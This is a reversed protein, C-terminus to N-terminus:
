RRRRQEPGLYLGPCPSSRAGPRESPRVAVLARKRGPPREEDSGRRRGPKFRRKGVGMESEDGGPQRARRDITRALLPLGGRQYAAVLEQVEENITAQTQATLMRASLSTMYFVLAIACLAFLLLYLASLRAATTRMMPPLPLAM